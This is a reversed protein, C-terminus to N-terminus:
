TQQDAKSLELTKIGSIYSLKFLVDFRPHLIYDPSDPFYNEM